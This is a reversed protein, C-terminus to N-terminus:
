WAFLSLRKGLEFVKFFLNIYKTYSIHLQCSNFLDSGTELRRGLTSKLVLFIRTNIM